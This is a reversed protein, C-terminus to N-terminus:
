DESLEPEDDLRLDVVGPDDFSSEDDEADALLVSVRKTNMASMVYSMVRGPAMSQKDANFGKTRNFIRESSVQSPQIALLERAYRELPGMHGKLEKRWIAMDDVLHLNGRAKLALVVQGYHKFFPSLGNPAQQPPPPQLDDEAFVEELDMQQEEPPESPAIEPEAAALDQEYLEVLESKWEKVEAAPSAAVVSPTLFSAIKYLKSDLTSGFASRLHREMVRMIAPASVGREGAGLDAALKILKGVEPIVKGCTPVSDASMTKVFRGCAALFESIVGLDEKDAHLKARRRNWDQIDEARDGVMIAPTCTMVYPILPVLSNISRDDYVFKHSPSDAPIKALPVGAATQRAKLEDRRLGSARITAIIGKANDVIANYTREAGEEVQEACTAGTVSKIVNNLLHIVCFVDMLSEIDNYCVLNTAGDHTVARIDASTVTLRTLIRDVSARVNAITHSGPAPDVGVVVAVLYFNEDVMHASAGLYGTRNGSTSGYDYTLAFRAGRSHAKIVAILDNLDERALKDMERTVSRRSLHAATAKALGLLDACFMRFPFSEVTSAPLLCQLLYRAVVPLINVKTTAFESLTRQRKQPLAAPPQSAQAAAEEPALAQGSSVALTIPHVKM